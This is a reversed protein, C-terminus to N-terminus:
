QQMGLSIWQWVYFSNDSKGELFNNWQKLIQKGDLWQGDYNAIMQEIKSYTWDKLENRLWERQPTQLPRKPAEVIKGPLYQKLLERMFWKGQGHNIKFEDRQRFAIEFLRHDLFPERLETSSRMSVRDNFRLARPIKTYFADRFQLNRLKDPYKEPAKWSETLAAFEPTLCEPRVPSDSTGQIAPTNINTLSNRYYDYGAWQEDMGQGDLLVIVGRARAEEFVRAYAITPMGGFPEDEHFQLSEAMDPVQEPRLLCPILPHHTSNIMEQVWPLEDYNPDDTVFTFANIADRGKEKDVLSLLASSDLGGSINIGVPVDSRFRLHISEQLLAFYEEVVEKYSRQDYDLGSHSSLDYWQKINLQGDKLTLFHGPMLKKIGEWFTNEDHDYRGVSLYASWAAANAIKPIGAAHIAKIESAFYFQQNSFYYHFPKVGLRDRAAFITKEVDDWILISFMGIFKDLCAAGWKIYSYLVVESDTQTKFTFSSELQRRIELYNYVEGNFVMTYRGSADHLPQRGGESLDIISLRNHNLGVMQDASIYQGQADPGRHHQIKLMNDLAEKTWHKGIIGSIGCM